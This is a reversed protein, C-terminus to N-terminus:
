GGWANENTEDYKEILKGTLRDPINRIQETTRNVKTTLDTIKGDVDDLKNNMHQQNISITNIALEIKPISEYVIENVRVDETQASVLTAQVEKISVIQTGGWTLGGLLVGMILNEPTFLKGRAEKTENSM